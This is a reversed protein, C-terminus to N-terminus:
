RRPKSHLVAKMAQRIANVKKTASKVRAVKTYAAIESMAQVYMFLSLNMKECM